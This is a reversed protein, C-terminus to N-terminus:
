LDNRVPAMEMPMGAEVFDRFVNNHITVVHRQLRTKRVNNTMGFCITINSGSEEEVERYQLKSNFLLVATVVRWM